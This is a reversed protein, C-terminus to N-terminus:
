NNHWCYNQTVIAFKLGIRHQIRQCMASIIDHRITCHITMLKKANLNNLYQKIKYIHRSYWFWVIFPLFCLFISLLWISFSCWFFLEGRHLYYIYIPLGSGISFWDSIFFYISTWTRLKQNFNVLPIWLPFITSM